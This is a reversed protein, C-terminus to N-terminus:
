IDSEKVTQETKEFRIGHSQLEEMLTYVVLKLRRELDDYYNDYTQIDAKLESVLKLLETNEAQLNDRESQLSDRSAQLETLQDQMAQKEELAQQLQQKTTAQEQDLTQKAQMVEQLSAEMEDLVKTFDDMRHDMQSAMEVSAQLDNREDTLLNVEDILADQQQHLADMNKVVDALDGAYAQIVDSADDANAVEDWGEKKAQKVSHSPIEIPEGARVVEENAGLRDLREFM